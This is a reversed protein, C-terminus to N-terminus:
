SFRPLRDTMGYNLNTQSIISKVDKSYFLKMLDQKSGYANLIVDNPVSLSKKFEEYIQKYFKDDSKNSNAQYIKIGAIESLLNEFDNFLLDFRLFYLKINETEFVGYKSKKNFKFDSASIGLEFFIEHLSDSFGELSQDILESLFKDQLQDISSQYIITETFDQVMKKRLPKTGYSQFFSSIHRELPDRFVSIVNLKKNNKVLYSNLVHQFSGKKLNINKLSHIHRCKADSNRLSKVLTQTGSKYSSYVLFDLNLLEDLNNDSIVKIEPTVQNHSTVKM